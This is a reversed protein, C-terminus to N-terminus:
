KDPFFRLGFEKKLLAFAGRMYGALESFPAVRIMRIIQIPRLYFRQHANLVIGPLESVAIGELGTYGEVFDVGTGTMFKRYDVSVDQGVDFYDEYAKTGPYPIMVSFGAMTLPLSNAFQITQEM